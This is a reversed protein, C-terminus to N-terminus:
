MWIFEENSPKPQVRQTFQQNTNTQTHQLYRSAESPRQVKVQSIRAPVVEETLEQLERIRQMALVRRKEAVVRKAEALIEAYEMDDDDVIANSRHEKTPIKPEDERREHHNTHVAVRATLPPVSRLDRPMYDDSTEDVEEHDLVQSKRKADEVIIPVIPKPTIVQEEIEISTNNPMKTEPVLIDVQTQVPVLSHPNTTLSIPPATQIRSKLREAEEYIERRKLEGKMKEIELLTLRDQKERERKISRETALERRKEQAAAFQVERAPTPYWYKSYPKTPKVESQINQTENTEVVEKKIEPDKSLCPEEHIIELKTTLDEM